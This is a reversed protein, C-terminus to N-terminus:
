KHMRGRTGALGVLGLGLLLMTTPEPVASPASPLSALGDLWNVGTSGILTAAGTTINLSYLNSFGPKGNDLDALMYLTDTDEDYELGILLSDIGTSGILNSAGTTVNVTYLRQVDSTANTPGTAYLINKDNDFAMGRGEIGTGGGIVNIVGSPTISVLKFSNQFDISYLLGAAEAGALGHWNSSGGQDNIKTFAGTDVNITGFSYNDPYIDTAYLSSGLCALGTNSAGQGTTISKRVSAAGTLTNINYLVGPGTSSLAILNDSHAAPVGIVLVLFVFLSAIFNNLNRM